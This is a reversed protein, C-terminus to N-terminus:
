ARLTESDNNSLSYIVGVPPLLGELKINHHCACHPPLKEEKVKTIVDLSQHYAPPVVNLVIEIDKPEEEEDWQEELSEHFSLPPLDMGGQSLHLSSIAADEGVDKIWKFVEDVLAVSNVATAFYNSPSSNTGSSDKHNYDYTSLENKWHIIPNFHYLFDYGLLLDKGKPRHYPLGM